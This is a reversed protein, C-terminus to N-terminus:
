LAIKWSAELATVEDLRYRADRGIRYSKLVGAKEMRRLSMSSKEWRACLTRRSIFQNAGSASAVAPKSKTTTMKSDGVRASKRM